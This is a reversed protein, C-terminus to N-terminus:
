YHEHPQRCFLMGTYTVRAQERNDDDVKLLWRYLLLMQLRLDSNPCMEPDGVVRIIWANFRESVFGFELLHNVEFCEKFIPLLSWCLSEWFGNLVQCQSALAEAAAKAIYQPLYKTEEENIEPDTFWKRVWVIEPYDEDEPLMNMLPTLHYVFYGHIMEMLIPVGHHRNQLERRIRQQNELSLDNFLRLVSLYERYSGFVQNKM